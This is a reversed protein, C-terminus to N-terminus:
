QFIFKFQWIIGTNSLFHKNEKEELGHYNLEVEVFSIHCSFSFLNFNASSALNQVVAAQWFYYNVMM